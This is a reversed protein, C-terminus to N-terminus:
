PNAPQRRHDDRMPRHIQARDDHCQPEWLVLAPRAQNELYRLMILAGLADFPFAPWRSITRGM